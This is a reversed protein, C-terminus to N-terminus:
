VGAISRVVYGALMLGATGPVFACSAPVARRAGDNEGESPALPTIAQETSYLVTVNKFGRKRCEYRMTRALPCDTTKELKDIKLMEPHLKNGTGMSCILNTGNKQANEIILLKATVTDIADIVFDYASFDFEAQTEVSYFCTHKIVKCEPNIDAMRAAAVDTKYMGVTSNLALIQRNLNSMAVTDSDCIDLTGIGSRCLAEAAYGGVGGLGFVAVRANKLRQLAEDGLLRRTRSFLQEGNDM